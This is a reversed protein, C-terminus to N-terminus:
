PGAQSGTGQHGGANTEAPGALGEFTDYSYEVCLRVGAPRSTRSDKCVQSVFFREEDDDGHDGFPMHPWLTFLGSHTAEGSFHVLGVTEGSTGAITKLLEPWLGRFADMTAQSDQWEPKDGAFVKMCGSPSSPPPWPRKPARVFVSVPQGFWALARSDTPLYYRWDAFTSGSDLCLVVSLDNGKAM